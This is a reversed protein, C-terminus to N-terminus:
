INPHKKIKYITKHKYDRNSDFITSPFEKINLSDPFYQTELCIGWNKLYRQNNKGITKENINKGAYVQVGPMTSHIELKLSKNSNYIAGVYKVGEFEDRSVVYCHDLDLLEKVPRPGNLDKLGEVKEIRGTPIMEEDVPLFHDSAVELYHKSIDEKGGSLNFYSHNTLNIPTKEDTIVKYEITLNNRDDLIYYIEFKRNGPFDDELHGRELSCKIGKDIIEIEWFDKHFGLSGSHLTHKGENKELSYQNNDIKFFGNSVRNAYPGIACGFFNTDEEYSKLDSYGLAIDIQQNDLNLKFSRIIAGYNLVEIETGLSNKLKYSYVERGTSDIGFLEREM